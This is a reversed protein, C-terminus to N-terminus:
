FLVFNTKYEFNVYPEWNESSFFSKSIQENTKSFNFLCVNQRKKKFVRYKNTPKLGRKHILVMEFNKTVSKLSKRMFNQSIELSHKLKTLKRALFITKKLFM